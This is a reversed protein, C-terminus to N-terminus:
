SESGTTMTSPRTSATAPEGDRTFREDRDVAREPEHFRERVEGKYEGAPGVWAIRRGRIVIEQDTLWTRSHVDLLRGVRLVRDAPRKGLSVLLLDQRIKVEDAANLLLDSPLDTM